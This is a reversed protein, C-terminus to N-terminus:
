ELAPLVSVEIKNIVGERKFLSESVEKSLKNEAHTNIDGNDYYVSVQEHDEVKFLVLTQCVTFALSGPELQIEVAEGDLNYYTFSRPTTLFESRRLLHPMFHIEGNEVVVGLEFYRSLIDEKVQGTMGPQQAGLHAPTHSYPDTPFAGYLDPSKNLGIGARITYYHDVMQNLLSQAAGARKASFYNEAVALLLKSVMHWYISGLGEYGFFTGSRGTFSQHDFMEEFVDLTAQEDKKVLEAYAPEHKLEGLIESIDRANRIEGQFHGTGNVDQIVLRRDGEALM